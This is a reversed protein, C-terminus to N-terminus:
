TYDKAARTGAWTLLSALAQPRERAIRRHLSKLYEVDARSWCGLVLTLVGYAVSLILGGVVVSIAPRNVERLPLALACALAIALAIRGIRRWDLQAGSVKFGLALTLLCDALTATTYAVVAGMLGFTRILVIDLVLKLAGTATVRILISHQHDASLLISQAGQAVKGISIAFLTGALVPGAAAYANGYLLRITPDSFVFGFGILPAALMALYTTSAALRRAALERSETLAKAMMPLLVASFMGPVLLAAGVALQYAVKFEGAASASDLLNLFLVETESATCYTITVTLAVLKMHRRVRRLLEDPLRANRDGPPILRRTQWSSAAFFVVSSIAFIALFGEVPADVYWAVIVMGLNLPTALMAVSATAGFNEFGKALSINFMYNARLTVSFVLLALLILHDFGPALKDGAFILVAAGIALVIVLFVRQARRLYGVMPAILDERGAGRLEAVFKIVATTTGSNTSMVGIAVLWVILSYTGFDSPGLHRAIIISVLMGLFYETYIGASSLLTNRMTQARNSM